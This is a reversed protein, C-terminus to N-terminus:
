GHLKRIMRFHCVELIKTNQGNERSFTAYILSLFTYQSHCTAVTLDIFWLTPESFSSLQRFYIYVCARLVNIRLYSTWARMQGLIVLSTWPENARDNFSLKRQNSGERKSKPSYNAKTKTLILNRRGKQQGTTNLSCHRFSWISIVQMGRVLDFSLFFTCPLLPIFNTWTEPQNAMTGINSEWLEDVKRALNEHLCFCLLQVVLLFFVFGLNHVSLM